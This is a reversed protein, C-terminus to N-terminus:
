RADPVVPSGAAIELARGPTMHSLVIGDVDCLLIEVRVVSAGLTFRVERGAEYLQRAVRAAVRMARLAEASPVGALEAHPDRDPPAPSADLYM